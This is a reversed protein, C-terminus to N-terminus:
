APRQQDHWTIEQKLLSDLYMKRARNMQRESTITWAATM